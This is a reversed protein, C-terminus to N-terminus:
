LRAVLTQKNLPITGLLCRHATHKMVLGETVDWRLSYIEYYKREVITHPNRWSPGRLMFSHKSESCLSCIVYFLGMLGLRYKKKQWAMSTKTSRRM